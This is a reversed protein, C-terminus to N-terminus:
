HASPAVTLEYQNGNIQLMYPQDPPPSLMGIATRSVKYGHAILFQQVQNGIAQDANGGITRLSVPAEKSPMNQVLQVGLEDSFGVRGPNCIITNGNGIASCVNGRNNNFSNTQAYSASAVLCAIVFTVLDVEGIKFM